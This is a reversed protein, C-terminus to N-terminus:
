DNRMALISGPSASNTDSHVPRDHSSFHLASQATWRVPYQAIYFMGKKLGKYRVLCTIQSFNSKCSNTKKSSTSFPLKVEHAFCLIVRALWNTNIHYMVCAYVDAYTAHFM